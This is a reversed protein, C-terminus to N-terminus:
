IDAEERGGPDQTFCESEWYIDNALLVNLEFESMYFFSDNHHCRVQCCCGMETKNEQDAFRIVCYEQLAPLYRVLDKPSM